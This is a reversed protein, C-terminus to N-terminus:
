SISVTYSCIQLLNQLNLNERKLLQETLGEPEFRPITVHVINDGAPCFIIIVAQAHTQKM